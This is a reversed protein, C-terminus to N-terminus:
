PVIEATVLYYHERETVGWPDHEGAIREELEICKGVLYRPVSQNYPYQTKAITPVSEVTEHSLFYPKGNHVNTVMVYIGKDVGDVERPVFLNTTGVAAFDTSICKQDEESSFHDANTEDAPEAVIVSFVEGNDCQYPNNSRSAKQNKDIYLIKGYLLPPLAKGFRQRFGELCDRDLFFVDHKTGHHFAVYVNERNSFQIFMAMDDPQFSKYAFKWKSSVAKDDAGTCADLANASSLVVMPSDPKKTDVLIEQVSAHSIVSSPVGENREESSPAPTEKAVAEVSERARNSEMLMSEKKASHVAAAAADDEMEAEFSENVDFDPAGGSEIAPRGEGLKSPSSVVAEEAGDEKKGEMAAGAGLKTSEDGSGLFSDKGPTSASSVASSASTSRPRSGKLGARNGSDSSSDTSTYKRISNRISGVLEKGVKRIEPIKRVEVHGVTNAHKISSAREDETLDVLMFDEVSDNSGNLDSAGEGQGKETGRGAGKAAGVDLESFKQHNPDIAEEEEDCSPVPPMLFEHGFFEDYSMREEPTLTCLRELIDYCEPPTEPPLIDTKPAMGRNVRDWFNTKLSKEDDGKIMNYLIVGVSYLDVKYSYNIHEGSKWAGVLEPAMFLKSGCITKATDQDDELERALGFDAIKLIASGPDSATLLLNDPKLDRHIVNLSHLFQLGRALDKIFKRAIGFSLPGVRAIMETLDGGPCLEMYLKIETKSLDVDHLKVINPNGNTFREMVLKMINIEKEVSSIFEKRKRAISIIKVAINTNSNCIKGKYVVGFTGRGLEESAERSYVYKKTARSELPVNSQVGVSETLKSPSTEGLELASVSM